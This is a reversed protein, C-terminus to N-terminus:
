HWRRKRHPNRERETKTDWRSMERSPTRAIAKPAIESPLLVANVSRAPEKMMRVVVDYAHAIKGWRREPRDFM